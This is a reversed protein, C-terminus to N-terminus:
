AEDDDDENEEDECAAAAECLQVDMAANAAKLVESVKEKLEAPFESPPCWGWDDYIKEQGDEDDPDVEVSRVRYHAVVNGWSDDAKMHIGGHWHAFTGDERAFDGLRDFVVDQAAKAAEACFYGEADECPRITEWNTNIVIQVGFEETLQIVEAM